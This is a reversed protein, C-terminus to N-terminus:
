KRNIAQGTFRDYKLAVPRGTADREINVDQWYARDVFRDRGLPILPSLDGSPWRLGLDSGSAILKVQASPQYFDPGFQFTGTSSNLQEASLRPGPHFPEFPLGLAIAAIDNGITTTASSYINSFVVVTLSEKPLYLVFSAFGPARGNMYYATQHFRASDRRFWGYGIPPSTELVLKRLDESLFRGEFLARVWRAEDRVTTIASGNGAKGSWHIPTAPELESLGKPQYGKAVGKDRVQDDDIASHSLGAPGFVLKKVAQSFPKRTKTETILALLNYASHEEHQFKSGPEFLLPREKIKAVLSAPTQHVELVEGYDPLDNIDSLGSRQVLLDRMTIRDGGTIGPVVESVKTDLALRKQDVLRLIAAATFQMSVSAVHFRVATTNPLSKERDALGFAKEFVIKGNKEVLVAGSFNSTESYPRIYSEIAAPDIRDQALSPSASLAAVGLLILASIKM